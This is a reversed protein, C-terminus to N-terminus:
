GRRDGREADGRSVANPMLGTTAVLRHNTAHALAVIM